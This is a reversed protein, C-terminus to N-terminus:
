SSKLDDGEVVSSLSFSLKHDKWIGDELYKEYFTTQGTKHVAIVTMSRTGYPPNDWYVFIPSFAHEHAESLGTKPLRSIEARTSDTLLEDILCNEPIVQDPYQSLLVEIKEKGRLVKPWPTDLNANSLSHLGPSVQKVEVPEGRPRNSLYAMEKTNMDAVILNFGNYKDARAAVEELYATPSKSSKLFLTPLEGRSVAGPTDKGPERFNTVFALRGSESIALWTGGAEGDRGGIIHDSWRHAPLTPRSHYEDRNLALLLRYEAHAELLWFAICM